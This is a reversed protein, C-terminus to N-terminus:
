RGRGWSAPRVSLATALARPPPPPPTVSLSLPGLLHCEGLHTATGSSDFGMNNRDMKVTSKFAAVRVQYKGGSSCPVLLDMKAEQPVFLGALRRPGRLVVPKPLLSPFITVFVGLQRDCSVLSLEACRSAAFAFGNGVHDHKGFPAVDLERRGFM